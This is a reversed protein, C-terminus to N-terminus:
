YMFWTKGKQFLVFLTPPIGGVDFGKYIPHLQTDIFNFVEDTHQSHSLLFTPSEGVGATQTKFHWSCSVSGWIAVLTHIHPYYADNWESFVNSACFLASFPESWSESLQKNAATVCYSLWHSYIGNQGGFNFTKVVKLDSLSNFTEFQLKLCACGQGWM